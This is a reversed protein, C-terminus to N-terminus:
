PLLAQLKNGLGASEKEEEEQNRTGSARFKPHLKIVCIQLWLSETHSLSIKKRNAPLPQFGRSATVPPSLLHALWLLIGKM